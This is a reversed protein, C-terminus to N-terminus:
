LQALKWGAILAADATNHDKKRKFFHAADPWLRTAIERSDFEQGKVIGLEKRYWNQWKQPSVEEPDNLFTAFIGGFATGTSKGFSFMSCVGQGSFAHVAEVVIHDAGVVAEKIADVIERLKKFDRWVKFEGRGVVAVAGSMGPDVGVVKHPADIMGKFETM